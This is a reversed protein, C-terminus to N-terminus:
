RPWLFQVLHWLAYVIAALIAIREVLGLLSMLTLIWPPLEVDRPPLLRITISYLVLIALGLLLAIRVSLNM